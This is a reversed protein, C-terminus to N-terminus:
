GRGQGEQWASRSPAFRALRELVGHILTREADEPPGLLRGSRQAALARQVVSHDAGRGLAWAGGAVKSLVLGEEAYAMARCANLVAYTGDGHELGWILEDHLHALVTDRSVEGVLSSPPPGSMSVGAAGTVLYHLCLDPDGTGRDTVVRREGHAVHLLYPWPPAPHLAAAASVASLEVVPRDDLGKVLVQGVDEWSVGAARDEVVALVDLDSSPIWGGLAASGHVYVGLLGECVAATLLDTVQRAQRRWPLETTM